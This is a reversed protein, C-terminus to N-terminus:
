EIVITFIESADIITPQYRWLTYQVTSDGYGNVAVTQGLKKFEPTIDLNGTTKLLVQSLKCINNPLAVIISEKTTLDAAKLEFQTAGLIKDNQSLSTISNSNYNTGAFGGAFWNYYGKFINTDTNFVKSVTAGKIQLDEHYNNILDMPVAGNTHTGVIECSVKYGDSSYAVEPSVYIDYKKNETINKFEQTYAYQGAITKVSVIEWMVNTPMDLNKYEGVSVELTGIKIPTASDTGVPAADPYDWTFKIEPLEREPPNPTGFAELLFAPLTKGKTPVQVLGESVSFKGFSRAIYLDTDFYINNMSNTTNLPQWTKNADKDMIYSNYAYLNTDIEKKIIAIDGSKSNQVSDLSDVIFVTQDLKKMETDIDKLTNNVTTLQEAVISAVKAETPIGMNEASENENYQIKYAITDGAEDGGLLSVKMNGPVKLMEDNALLEQTVTATLKQIIERKANNIESKFQTDIDDLTLLIKEELEQTETNIAKIRVAM